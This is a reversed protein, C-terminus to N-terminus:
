PKSSFPWVKAKRFDPCQRPLEFASPASPWGLAAQHQWRNLRTQPWYFMNQLSEPMVFQFNNQITAFRFLWPKDGLTSNAITHILRLLCHSLLTPQPPLQSVCLKNSKKGFAYRPNGNWKPTQPHPQTRWTKRKRECGDAVTRLRECGNAHPGYPEGCHRTRRSPTGFAHWTSDKDGCNYQRKCLVQRHTHDTDCCNYQRKCHIQRHSHDTDGCNYQRKCLSRDTHTIQTAATINANASSTDTHTIQTAATINANASSRDTHTIQTAATIKANASSTDTPTIQTAATINTNASSTDTHTIQTAATINTNANSTDTPTIQTAATIQTNASSADTHISQTAATINANASSTDTHAIQTGSPHRSLM